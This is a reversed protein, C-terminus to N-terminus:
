VAPKTIELWRLYRKRKWLKYGLSAVFKGNDDVDVTWVLVYGILALLVNLKGLWGFRSRPVEVEM